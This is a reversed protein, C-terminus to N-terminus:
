AGPIRVIRQPGPGKSAYSSVLVTTRDPSLPGFSTNDPFVTIEETDLDVLFERDQGDETTMTIGTWRGLTMIDHPAPVNHPDVPFPAFETTRGSTEKITLLAPQADEDRYERGVCWAEWDETSEAGCFGPEDVHDSVPVPSTKGTRLDYTAFSPPADEDHPDAVQYRLTDGVIQVMAGKRAIVRPPQSGDVPVAYVAEQGRKGPYTPTSFYATDGAIDLDNGYVIQGDPDDFDAITTLKESARDYSYITFASHDITTGVVEVWVVATENGAVTGIQTGPRERDDLVTFADADVDYIVPHSQALGPAGTVPDPEPEEAPRVTGVLVGSEVLDRFHVPDGDFTQPLDAVVELTKGLELTTATAPDITRMADETAATREPEPDSGPGCGTTAVALVLAAAWAGTRM